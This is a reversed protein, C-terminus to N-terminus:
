HGELFDYLLDKKRSAIPIVEGNILEIYHQDVKMVKNIFVANVCFSKHCRFFFRKDLMAEVKKMTLSVKVSNGNILYIDTYNIDSKLYVIESPTIFEFGGLVNIKISPSNFLSQARSMRNIALLNLSTYSYHKSRERIANLTGGLEIPDIPKLLYDVAGIKLAQIAYKKHATTFVLHFKFKGLQKLVDFGSQGPMEIDLFVIDCQTQSLVAIAEQPDQIKGVVLYDRPFYRQLMSEIVRAASSEDDIILVKKM